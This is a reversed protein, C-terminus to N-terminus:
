RARLPSRYASQSPLQERTADKRARARAAAPHGDGLARRLRTYGAALLSRAEATDGSLRWLCAGLASEADGRRWHNQPLSAEAQRLAERLHSEAEATRNQDALVEGLGMLMEVTAMHPKPRVQRQVDLAHRFRTEADAHAGLAASVRARAALATAVAPHPAGYKATNIDVADELLPLAELAWGQDILASGQLELVRALLPHDRGAAQRLVAAARDFLPMAEAFRAQLALVHALNGQVIGYDRHGEGNLKQYLVLVQRFRSEAAPLDGKALRTFALHHITEAVRPHDDGYLERWMGLAEEYTTEAGALDGDQLRAVGLSLLSTAVMSHRDGAAKRQVRVVERQREAAGAYDGRSYLVNALNSLSAATLPDEPGLRRERIALAERYLPEAEDLKARDRLVVGLLELSTALELSDRPLLRRRQTVVQRATEEAAAYDGASHLFWGLTDLAEAVLAHDPGYATRMREVSREALARARDYRGISHWISAVTEFLEGQVAAHGELEREIRDTGRELLERATITEGKSKAPDSDQFLRVLFDKVTAVRAAEMRARDRERAAVTAQWATTIIGLLLSLAVIAAATVSVVHRRVFKAALYAMTDRRAQVPHGSRHRQVDDALAEASAYRRAPQKSLAKLVITDLDGRLQRALRPQAGVALSPARPEVECVARTVDTRGREDCDYPLRGTLMEYLVVGLAYVDTATTVAEGRVQEPAAYAPTLVRGGFRTIASGDDEEVLLKAIGFDLLKLEGTGTVLINSPKLDRHVVLKGHAHQVARCAGEFLRLRADVPLDRQLCYTTLPEGDVYEMAFYPQGDDTVGGDLLRAVNVHELAALIQRERLFRRLIADSDMGRKILKVVVRQEFGGAIREAFYVVGMGGRGLERLLRYPGVRRQSLEVGSTMEILAAGREGDFADLFNGAREHAALLSEIEARLGPNPGCAIDLFAAREAPARDLAEGFIGALTRPDVHSRRSAVM